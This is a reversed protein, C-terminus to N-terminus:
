MAVVRIFRAFTRSLSRLRVCFTAYQVIGNIHFLWFLYIWLSLHLSITALPQSSPPLPSLWKIPRPNGKSTLFHTPVLPLLHDSLMTVTSIDSSQEGYFPQNPSNRATWHNPGPAKEASPRPDIGPRPVLIGSAM